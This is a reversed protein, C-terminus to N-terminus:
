AVGAVRRAVDEHRTTHFGVVRGDRFVWVNYVPMELRAGSVKGIASQHGIALVRDGCDILEEAEQRFDEWQELFGRFWARLAELGHLVIEDGDADFTTSVVDDAFLDTAVRWNGRSWQEYVHRLAEVNAASM